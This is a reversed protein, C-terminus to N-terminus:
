CLILVVILTLTFNVNRYQNIGHPGIFALSLEKRGKSYNNEWHKHLKDRKITNFTVKM